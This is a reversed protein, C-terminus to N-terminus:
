EARLTLAPDTLSARWAPIWSALLAVAVLGIVASSLLMWDLPPSGPVIRALLRSAAVAGAIGTTMGVAVITLTERLVLRQVDGRRAGLALRIGFESRRCTVGYAVIGYLGLAALATAVLAVGSSLVALLRERSVMAAVVDALPHIAEIQAPAGVAEVATRIATVAAAPERHRVLLMGSASVGPQYVMPWPETRVGYHRVDGVVGVITSITPEPLAPIRVTEGVATRGSFYRRAFTQNVIVVPTGGTIDSSELARGEKVPIRLTTFFGPGVSIVGAGIDEGPRPTYGAPAIGMSTGGSDYVPPFAYSASEIAPSAELSRRVDEFVISLRPAPAAKPFSLNVAAVSSADFGLDVTRLRHLMSLCLAAVVLLVLVAALQIAVTTRSTVPRRTVRAAPSLSAHSTGSTAPWWAPLTIAALASVMGLTTAVALIVPDAALDFALPETTPLLGLIGGGIWPAVVLSGGTGAIGLMLGEVLLQRFIRPRSAGLARRLAFEDRRRANRARVLNAVNACCILFICGAIGTLVRLQPEYRRGTTALGAGAPRVVIHEDRFM